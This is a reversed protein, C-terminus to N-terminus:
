MILLEPQMCICVHCRESCNSQCTAAVWYIGSGVVHQRSVCWTQCLMPLNLLLTSCNHYLVLHPGAAFHSLFLLEGAIQSFSQQLSDVAQVAAAAQQADSQAAAAAADEQLSQSGKM